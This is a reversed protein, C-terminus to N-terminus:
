FVETINVIAGDRPRRNAKSALRGKEKLLRWVAETVNVQIPGEYSFYQGPAGAGRSNAQKQWSKADDKTIHLTWGEDRQGFEHEVMVVAYATEYAVSDDAPLPVEIKGSPRFIVHHDADDFRLLRLRRASPGLKSM